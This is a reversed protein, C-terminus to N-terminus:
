KQNIDFIVTFAKDWPAVVAHTSTALSLSSCQRLVKFPPVPKKEPVSSVHLYSLPRSTEAIKAM